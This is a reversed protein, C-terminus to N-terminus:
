FVTVSVSMLQVNCFKAPSWLILEYGYYFVQRSFVRGGLSSFCFRSYHMVPLIRSEPIKSDWIVNWTGCLLVSSFHTCNNVTCSHM